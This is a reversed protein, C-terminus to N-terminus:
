ERLLSAIKDLVGNVLSVQQQEYFAHTVNLYDDIILPADIDQHTLLECVACLLISKLLPEIEKEGLHANLIENIEALRKDLNSLIKKFLVGHPKAMEDSDQFEIMGRDLYEQILAAVPKKNQLNQYYAQAAMLRAALEKNNNSM